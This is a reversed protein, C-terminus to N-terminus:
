QSRLLFVQVENQNNRSLNELITDLAQKSQATDIKVIAEDVFIGIRYKTQASDWNFPILKNKQAMYTDIFTNLKGEHENVAQKARDKLISLPTTRSLAQAKLLAMAAVMGIVLTGALHPWSLVREKWICHPFPELSCLKDSSFAAANPVRQIITRMSYVMTAMVSSFLGIVVGSIQCARTSLRLACAAWPTLTYDTVEPITAATRMSTLTEEPLLKKLDEEKSEKYKEIELGSFSTIM